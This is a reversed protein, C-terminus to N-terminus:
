AVVLISNSWCYCYSSVYSYLVPVYCARHKVILMIFHGLNHMSDPYQVATQCPLSSSSVKYQITTCLSKPCFMRSLYRNLWTTSCVFPFIMVHNTTGSLVLGLRSLLGRFPTSFIVLWERSRPLGAHASKRGATKVKASQFRGDSGHRLQFVTPPYTRTVKHLQWCGNSSYTYM